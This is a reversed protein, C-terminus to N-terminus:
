ASRHDFASIQALLISHWQGFGAFHHGFRQIESLGCSDCAFHRNASNDDLVPDNDPAPGVPGNFTMVGSGVGFDNGNAFGRRM